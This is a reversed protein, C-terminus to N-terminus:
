YQTCSPISNFTLCDNWGFIWDSFVLCLFLFQVHCLPTLWHSISWVNPEQCYDMVSLHEHKIFQSEGKTNLYQSPEKYVLPQLIDCKTQVMCYKVVSHNLINANTALVWCWCMSSKCSKHFCWFDLMILRAALCLMSLGQAPGSRKCHVHMRRDGANGLPELGMSPLCNGKVM